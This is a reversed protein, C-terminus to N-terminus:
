AQLVSLVESLTAREARVRVHSNDISVFVKSRQEAAVPAPTDMPVTPMVWASPQVVCLVAVSLTLLRLIKSM